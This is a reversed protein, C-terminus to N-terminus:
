RPEIVVRVCCLGKQAERGLDTHFAGRRHARSDVAEHAFPQFDMGEVIQAFCLGDHSQGLAVIAGTEVLRTLTGEVGTITAVSGHAADEFATEAEDGWFLRRWRDGGAGIEATGIGKGSLLGM